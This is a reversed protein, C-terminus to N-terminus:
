HSAIKKWFMEAIYINKIYNVSFLKLDPGM